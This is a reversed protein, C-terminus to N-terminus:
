RLLFFAKGPSFPRSAASHRSPENRRIPSERASTIYKDEHRLRNKNTFQLNDLDFKRGKAFLCKPRSM